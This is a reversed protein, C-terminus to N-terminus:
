RLVNSLHILGHGNDDRFQEHIYIYSYLIIVHCERMVGIFSALFDVM